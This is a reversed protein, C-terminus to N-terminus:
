FLIVFYFVVFVALPLKPLADPQGASQICSITDAFFLTRNITFKNVYKSINFM